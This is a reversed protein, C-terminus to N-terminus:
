YISFNDHSYKVLFIYTCYLQTNGLNWFLFISFGFMYQGSGIASRTVNNAINCLPAQSWRPQSRVKFQVDSRWVVPLSM